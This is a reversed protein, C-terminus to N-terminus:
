QRQVNRASTASASRSSFTPQPVLWLRDSTRHEKPSPLATQRFFRPRGDRLLRGLFCPLFFGLESSAYGEQIAETERPNRKATMMTVLRGNVSSRAVTIKSLTKKAM